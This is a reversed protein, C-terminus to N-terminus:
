RSTRSNSVARARHPKRSACTSRIPPCVFRPRALAFFAYSLRAPADGGGLSAGHSECTLLGFRRLM